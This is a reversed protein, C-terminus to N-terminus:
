YSLGATRLEEDHADLIREAREIDEVSVVGDEVAARLEVYGHADEDAGALAQRFTDNTLGGTDALVDNLVFMVGINSGWVDGADWVDEIVWGLAGLADVAGRPIGGPTAEPRMGTSNFAALTVSSMADTVDCYGNGSAEHVYPVNPDISERIPEACHRCIM